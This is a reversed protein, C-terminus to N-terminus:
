LERLNRVAEQPKEYSEILVDVDYRMVKPM